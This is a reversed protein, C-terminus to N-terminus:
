SFSGDTNIVSWIYRQLDTASQELAEFHEDGVYWSAKAVQYNFKNILECVQKAKKFDKIAGAERLGQEYGAAFGVRTAHHRMQDSSEDNITANHNKGVSAKALAKSLESAQSRAEELQSALEIYKEAPVWEDPKQWSRIRKVYQQGRTRITQSLESLVYSKVTWVFDRWAEKVVSM